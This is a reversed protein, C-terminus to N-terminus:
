FNEDKTVARQLPYSSNSIAALEIESGSRDMRVVNDYDSPLVWFTRDNFYDEAFLSYIKKAMKMMFGTVTGGIIALALTTFLAATQFGPQKSGRPYEPDNIILTTFISFIAGLVGPMGHLNHIGCVDQIKFKNNLFPTLFHFGTTSIAGALLGMGIATAPAFPEDAAVGMVVGGALTANQVHVPDFKGKCWIRSVLFAAITSGTLSLFTNIIARHQGAPTAIAANFSPWMIWLFITGTLSFLDSSYCSTNDPHGKTASTTLMRTVALGFYCGFTHIFIGGGIDLCNLKVVGIYVSLWYWMPEFIGLILMQLPSVKGLVAGYSIMVAAACFLGNLLHIVGFSHYHGFTEGEPELEVLVQIPVSWQAVLASILFTYGVASYGARRLFTMLFGFGFFIMVNVDRFYNYYLAVDLGAEEDDEYKLWLAYLIIMLAEFILGLACFIITERTKAARNQEKEEKTRTKSTEVVNLTGTMTKTRSLVYGGPAQRKVHQDEDDSM